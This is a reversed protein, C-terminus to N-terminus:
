CWEIDQPRGFHAEIQRGIRALRLVHADTLAPRPQRQIRSVIEGGRVKHSDANVLGSVLTEGPGLTAEISLVKRNGNLPDATFLVGSAYPDVMRQVVVAMQVKRHEIGNRLRYTVARETFLSAWCLRVHELITSQGRIDLYSDHQGAFSTTPLDEA